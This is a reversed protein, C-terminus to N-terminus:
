RVVSNRLCVRRRKKMIIMPKDGNVIYSGPVNELWLKVHTSKGTGSPATFMYAKNEVAAVAGHMMFANFEAMASCIKRHVASSELYGESYGSEEALAREADIDKRDTTVYIDPQAGPALYNECVREVHPYISSVHIKKDAIAITFESM